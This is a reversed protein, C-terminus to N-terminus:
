NLYLCQIQLRHKALHVEGESVLPLVSVDSSCASLNMSTLSNHNCHCFYTYPFLQIFERVKRGTFAFLHTFHLSSCKTRSSLGWCFGHFPIDAEAQVNLSVYFPHSKNLSSNPSRKWM